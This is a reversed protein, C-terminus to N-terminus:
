ADRIGHLLINAKVMVGPISTISVRWVRFDKDPYAGVTILEDGKWHAEIVASNPHAPFSKLLSGSAADYVRLNSASDGVALMRGSPDWTLKGLSQGAAATITSVLMYKQEFPSDVAMRPDKWILITSGAGPTAAALFDGTPSWETMSVSASPQPALMPSQTSGDSKSIYVAPDNTGIALYAGDPSWRAALPWEGETRSANFMRQRELTDGTMGWIEIGKGAVVALLEGAPHWDVDGADGGTPKRDLLAGTDANWLTIERDAGTPVLALRGNPSLAIADINANSNSTIIEQWRISGSALDFAFVRTPGDTKAVLAVLSGSAESFDFAMTAGFDEWYGGKDEDGPHFIRPAQIAKVSQIALEAV